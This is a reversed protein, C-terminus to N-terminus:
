VRDTCEGCGCLEPWGVGVQLCTPSLPQCARPAGSAQPEWVRQDPSSVSPESRSEVSMSRGETRSRLLDEIVCQTSARRLGGLLHGPDSDYPFQWAASHERDPFCRLESDQRGGATRRNQRHMGFGSHIPMLDRGLRPQIEEPFCAGGVSALGREFCLPECGAAQTQRSALPAQHQLFTKLRELFQCVLVPGSAREVPFLDTM